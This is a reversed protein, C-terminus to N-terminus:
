ARAPLVLGHLWAALIVALGIPILWAVHYWAGVAMVGYGALRTAEATRTMYRGIYRGFPSQRCKELDAFRVILLSVAISPIFALALGAVLRHGWLLYLAILGTSWDTFLKLPHIQHYLSREQITM